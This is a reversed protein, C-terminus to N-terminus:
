LRRDCDPLETLKACLLAGALLSDCLTALFEADSEDQDAFLHRAAASGARVLYNGAIRLAAAEEPSPPAIPRPLRADTDM